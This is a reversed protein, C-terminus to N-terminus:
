VVINLNRGRKEDVPLSSVKAAERAKVAASETKENDNDGNAHVGSVRARVPPAQTIAPSHPSGGTVAAVSM